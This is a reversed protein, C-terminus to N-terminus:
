FEFVFIHERITVVTLYMEKATNVTTILSLSCVLCMVIIDIVFYSTSSASASINHCQHLTTVMFPEENITEFYATSFPHFTGPFQM